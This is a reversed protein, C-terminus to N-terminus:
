MNSHLFLTVSLDDLVGNANFFFGSKSFYKNPASSSATISFIKKAITSLCPFSNAQPEWFDFVDPKGHIQMSLYQSIESNTSKKQYDAWKDFKSYKAQPEELSDSKSLSDHDNISRIMTRVPAHVESREDETLMKLHRFQPCLFTAVKHVTQVKFLKKM